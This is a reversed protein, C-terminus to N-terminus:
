LSLLNSLANNLSEDFGRTNVKHPEIVPKPESAVIYATARAKTIAEIRRVHTEAEKGSISFPEAQKVIIGM